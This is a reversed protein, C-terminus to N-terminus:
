GARQRRYIWWRSTAFNVALGGISGAAVGLEPYLRVLPSAYYLFAYIGYNVVFGGCMAFLYRAWEGLLGYNREQRFTHNRNYLWTATAACLFSLLRALYADWGFGGVLVRLVGADVVFGIVGGICFLLFQRM